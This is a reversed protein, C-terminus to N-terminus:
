HTKQIQQMSQMDFKTVDNNDSARYTSYVSGSDKMDTIFSSLTHENHTLDHEIGGLFEIAKDTVEDFTFEFHEFGLDLATSKMFDCFGNMAQFIPDGSKKMDKVGMLGVLGIQIISFMLFLLGASANIAAAGQVGVTSHFLGSPTAYERIGEDGKIVSQKMGSAFEQLNKLLNIDNPKTLGYTEPTANLFKAGNTAMQQRVALQSANMASSTDSIKDPTRMLQATKKVPIGVAKQLGVAKEPITHIHRLTDALAM